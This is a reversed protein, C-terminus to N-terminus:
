GNNSVGKLFKGNTPQKHVSHSLVLAPNLNGLTIYECNTIAYKAVHM